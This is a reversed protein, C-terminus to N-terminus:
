RTARSLQRVFRRSNSVGLLFVDFSRFRVEARGMWSLPPDRGHGDLEIVDDDRRVVLAGGGPEQGFQQAKGLRHREAREQPHLRVVVDGEIEDVGPLLDSGPV